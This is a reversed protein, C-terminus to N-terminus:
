NELLNKRIYPLVIGSVLFAEAAIYTLMILPHRFPFDLGMFSDVAIMFDSSIFLLGGIVILGSYPYKKIIGGIGCATISFLCAGYLVVALGMNGELHFPITILLPLVTVPVAVFWLAESPRLKGFRRWLILLYFIHGILFATLGAMLFNMGSFLLLVDGVTHLTLAAALYLILKRDCDTGLLALVAAAMLSPMLFPKIWPHLSETGFALSTVEVISLLLFVTGIVCVKRNM